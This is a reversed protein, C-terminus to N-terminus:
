MLDLRALAYPLLKLELSGASTPWVQGAETRFAEPSEMAQEANTEDLHRVRVQESLNQVTVQQPISSLNAVIVRTQDDKILALGDVALSDSSRSPAIEGGAFEAVDALIHYLPFVAGALSRFRDPVPSGAEIEMVGRWGTTEYYTVSQAGNEFMYKLSGLTWGAGFLSMQREDVASPLEGPGPEPEPGTANPNFRMKLTIPSVALPLDGIFQRASKVTPAQAELTEVLSANDFAHVQPNISYVVLDLAQVPPRGANLETFFANTGGGIKAAPDYNGLIERALKIWKESTSKEKQHFILWAWIPPKIQDLVGALSKLEAAAADSVTVAVELPVGLALAEVTARRLTAEYDPQALRLDVRLHSLNLM